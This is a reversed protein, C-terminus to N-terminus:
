KFFSKRKPLPDDTCLEWSRKNNYKGCTNGSSHSVEKQIRISNDNYGFQYLDLNENQRGHQRQASFYEEAPDQCLRETFVYELGQSLLFKVLDIVSYKTVLIGEYTKTSIFM